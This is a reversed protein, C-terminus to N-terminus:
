TQEIVPLSNVVFTWQLANTFLKQPIEIHVGDVWSNAKIQFDYRVRDSSLILQVGNGETHETVTVDETIITSVQDSGQRKELLVSCDPRMYLLLPFALTAPDLTQNDNCMDVIRPDNPHHSAAHAPIDCQRVLSSCPHWPCPRVRHLCSTAHSAQANLGVRKGCGLPCDTTVCLDRVIHEALLCRVRKVPYPERCMACATIM